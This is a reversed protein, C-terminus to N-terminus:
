LPPNGTHYLHIPYFHSYNMLISRPYMELVNEKKGEIVRSLMRVNSPLNNNTIIASIYDEKFLTDYRKIEWEAMHMMIHNLIWISDYPSESFDRHIEFILKDLADLDAVKLSLIIPRLKQEAEHKYAKSLVYLQRAHYERNSELEHFFDSIVQYTKDANKKVILKYRLLLLLIAAHVPSLDDKIVSDDLNVLAYKELNVKSEAVKVNFTDISEFSTLYGSCVKWTDVYMGCNDFPLYSKKDVSEDIPRNKQTTNKRDNIVLM